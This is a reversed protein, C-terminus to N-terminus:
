IHPNNMYVIINESISKSRSNESKSDITESTKFLYFMTKKNIRRKQKWEIHSRRMRIHETLCQGLWPPSPTLAFPSLLPLLPWFNPNKRHCVKQIAGLSKCNDSLANTRRRLLEVYWTWWGSFMKGTEEDSLSATLCTM